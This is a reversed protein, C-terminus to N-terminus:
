RKMLPSQTKLKKDILYLDIGGLKNYFNVLYKMQITLVTNPLCYTSLTEGVKGKLYVAELVARRLRLVTNSNLDTVAASTRGATSRAKDRTFDSFFRWTMHSAPISRVSMVNQGLVRLVPPLSRCEIRMLIKSFSPDWAMSGSTSLYQM